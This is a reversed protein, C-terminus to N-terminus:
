FFIQRLLFSFLFVKFGTLRLPVCSFLFIHKESIQSNALNVEDHVPETSIPQMYERQGSSGDCGYKVLLEARRIGDSEEVTM